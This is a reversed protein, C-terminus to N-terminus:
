GDQRADARKERPYLWYDLLISVHTYVMLAYDFRVLAPGLLVRGLLYLAALAVTIAWIRYWLPKGSLKNLM